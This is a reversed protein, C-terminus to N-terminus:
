GTTMVLRAIQRSGNIINIFDKDLEESSQSFYNATKLKKFIMALSIVQHVM